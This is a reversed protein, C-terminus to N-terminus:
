ILRSLEVGDLERRMLRHHVGSSSPVRDVHWPRAVFCSSRGAPSVRSLIVVPISIHTRRKRTRARQRKVSRTKQWGQGSECSKNVGRMLGAMVAMEWGVGPEAKWCMFGARECAEGWSNKEGRVEGARPGDCNSRPM